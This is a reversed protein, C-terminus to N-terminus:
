AAVYEVIVEGRGGLGGGVSVNTPATGGAGITVNVTSTESLDLYSIVTQGGLGDCGSTGGAIRVGGMGGNSSALGGTGTRGTTNQDSHLGGLGGNATVTGATGANFTTIGGTGGDTANTPGATGGGGGGGIVTVKVIPSALAPVPWTANTSTITESATFGGGALRSGAAVDIVFDNSALGSLSGVTLESM